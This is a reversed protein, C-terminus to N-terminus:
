DIKKNATKTQKKIAEDFKIQNDQIANFLDKSDKYGYFTIDNNKKDVYEFNLNKYDVKDHLESM